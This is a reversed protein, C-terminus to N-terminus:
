HSKRRHTNIQRYDGQRQEADTLGLRDAAGSAGLPLAQLLKVASRPFVPRDVDGCATHLAGAADVVALAGLHHSEVTEGRLVEVVVPEGAAIGM